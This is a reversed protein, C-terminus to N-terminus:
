SFYKKTAPHTIVINKIKSTSVETVEILLDNQIYVDNNGNSCNLYNTGDFNTPDIIVDFAFSTVVNKNYTNTESFVNGDAVANFNMFSINNNLTNFTKLKKGNLYVTWHAITDAKSYTSFLILFFLIITKM